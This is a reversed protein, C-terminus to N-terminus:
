MQIHLAMIHGQGQVCSDLRKVLCQPHSSTGDSYTQDCLIQLEYFVTSVTVNQYYSGENHSKGQLYCVLRKVYCELAHPHVVM